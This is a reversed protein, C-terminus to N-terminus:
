FRLRATVGFTRLRGYTTSFRWPFFTNFSSNVGDVTNTFFVDRFAAVAEKNNFLNESWLEVTYMETEIGLRLNVLERSPAIAQNPAGIFQKGIYILDGRLYWDLDNTM